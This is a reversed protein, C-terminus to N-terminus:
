EVLYFFVYFDIKDLLGASVWKGFVIIVNFLLVAIHIVVNWDSEVLSIQSESSTM